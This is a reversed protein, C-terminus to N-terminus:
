MCTVIELSTYKVNAAMRRYFAQSHFGNSYHTVMVMIVLVPTHIYVHIAVALCETNSCCWEARAMLIGSTLVVSHESSHASCVGIQRECKIVETECLDKSSCHTM